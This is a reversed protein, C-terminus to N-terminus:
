QADGTSRTTGDTFRCPSLLATLRRDKASRMGCGLMDGVLAGVAPATQIGVGGLGACWLFRDCESDFGVLPLRDAAFTRHGAWLHRVPRPALTTFREVMRAGLDADHRRPLADCPQDDSEDAPSAAVQSTTWPRRYFCDAVDAVLPWRDCDEPGDVTLVTRRLSRLGPSRVGAMTAIEDAWAGAANVVTRVELCETSWLNWFQERREIARVAHGRMPVVGLREGESLFFHLLLRADLDYASPVLLAAEVEPRLVPCEAQAEAGDLLCLDSCVGDLFAALCRLPDIGNGMKVLMLPRARLMRRMGHGQVENFFRLSRATLEQIAAPGITPDLSAVSRGTSHIGCIAEQEFLAVSLGQQAAFYSVAARVIGGGIVGVDYRPASRPM